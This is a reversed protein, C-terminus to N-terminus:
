RPLAVRMGTKDASLVFLKDTGTAVCSLLTLAM